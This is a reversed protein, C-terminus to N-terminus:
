FSISFKGWLMWDNIYDNSATFEYSGGISLVSSREENFAVGLVLYPTNTMTSWSAASRLNLDSAQVAAANYLAASAGATTNAVPSSQYADNYITRNANYLSYLNNSGDAYVVTNDQWENVLSVLEDQRILVNWGLEGKFRGSELILAQNYRIQAQPTVKVEQTFVNIGPTYARMTAAGGTLEALQEAAYNEWVYMYRSWNGNNTDISRMQTNQFLYRYCTDARMTWRTSDNNSNLQIEYTGGAMLGFHFGNGVIPEAMYEATAKNGTPIIMGVYGNSLVNDECVFQYGLKLEIDALRTVSQAGDIRGYLWNPQAFAATISDIGDTTYGGDEVSWSEAWTTQSATPDSYPNADLATLINENLKMNMTVRQLATSLELWFGTDKDSLVQKWTLGIGWFSRELEPAITSVFASEAVTAGMQINPAYGIGFNWPRVISRDRNSDLQFDGIAAEDNTFAQLTTLDYPAFTTAGVDTSLGFANTIGNATTNNRIVQGTNQGAAATSTIQGTAIAAPINNVSLSNVAPAGTFDAVVDIPTGLQAGVGTATNYGAAGIGTGSFNALTTSGAGFTEDQTGSWYTQLTDTGGNAADVSANFTILGESSLNPFYYQGAASQNTNKGGLVAIQLSSKYGHRGADASRSEEMTPFLSVREPSASEFIPEFRLFTKGVNTIKQDAYASFAFCTAIGLAIVKKM